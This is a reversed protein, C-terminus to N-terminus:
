FVSRLARALNVRGRPQPTILSDLEAGTEVWTSRAAIAVFDILSVLSEVGAMLVLIEGDLLLSRDNQNQSGTLLYFVDRTRQGEPVRRLTSDVARLLAPTLHGAAALSPDRAFEEVRSQVYAFFVDFWGGDQLVRELGERSAFLQSKLHLQPRRVTGAPVPIPVNRAPELMAELVPTERLREWIEAPFPFAERPFRPHNMGEIVGLYRERLDRTGIGQGYVGVYLGGGSLGFIDALTARLQVYGELVDHTLVSQVMAEGYPANLSRPAIIFVHNGRLASGVLMGAWFFSSWQSDPILLRSGAPVLTYLAAKLASAYKPGYGTASHAQLIRASWDAPSSAVPVPADVLVSGSRLPPPIDDDSWGHDRLLNRAERKLPLAAPGRVLLSRDEWRAGEYNEGVGEGTFLAGGRTPDRESLDWFAVKKHDRMYDDAFRVPVSRVPTRRRFAPDGPFTVNVHVRVYRRLWGEGRERALAQLRTSGAVAQRLAHQAARLEREVDGAEGPLRVDSGLPDALLGMWRRGHRFDFYWQDLFIMFVPLSGTQDFELVRRTLAALYGDAVVRAGVRDVRGDGASGAFDHVWLVHYERAAQLSGILEPSFAENILYAFDNGGQIPEGVLRQLLDDIEQQSDHDDPTLALQFPLWVLRSDGWRHRGQREVRQVVDLWGDFAALVAAHRVSPPALSDVLVRSFRELAHARYSALIGGSRIMGFHRNFPLLVEELLVRRALALVPGPGQQGATSLLAHRFLRELGDHYSAVEAPYTHGDPYGPEKQLMFAVHSRIEEQFERDTQMSSSLFPTTMVDIWLASHRLAELIADTVSDRAPPVVTVAPRPPIAQAITRPRTRGALPQFLPFSIGLGFRETAPTWEARVMGARGLLGGRVIPDEIALTVRPPWPEPSAMEVGVQLLLARITGYVRGGGEPDGGFTGLFGDAAVGLVGIVPRIFEHRLGLYARLGGTFGGGVHGLAAVGGYPGFRAPLGLSRVPSYPDATQAQIPTAGLLAALLGFCGAAPGPTV